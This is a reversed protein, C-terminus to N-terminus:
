RVGFIVRGAVWVRQVAFRDDFLVLDAAKGPQISGFREDIGLITAPTLSAMRVAELLPVQALQTMTRVLDIMRTLSGALASEDALLAYGPGVKCALSGLQFNTGEPLGAGALADSVLAIRDAGKARYALKLLTPSVHFGDAVLECFINADALAFELTGAQRFLGQKSASSMANFLHTVKKLGVAVAARLDKDSAETHGASMRVGAASAVEILELAGSLEPAITMQSINSVRSLIWDREKATPPSMLKPNQAGAKTRALHPGELHVPLLRTKSSKRAYAWASLFSDFHDYTTTAATPCVSTTGGSLHFDAAALFADVTADLFDSGGGGHVHLDIFGPALYSGSGDFRDPLDPPVGEGTAQIFEDDIALWGHDIIRDPLILRANHICLM